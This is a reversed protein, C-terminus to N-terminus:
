LGNRYSIFDDWREKLYNKLDRSLVPDKGDTYIALIAKKIRVIAPSIYDSISPRDVVNVSIGSERAWRGVSENVRTDNTAAIVLYAGPIDDRRVRRRTWKVKGKADLARIGALALPAIVNVRAGADLLSRIKRHAVEGGGAVVVRRTKINVAIPFYKLIGGIQGERSVQGRSFPSRSDIQNIRRKEVATYSYRM